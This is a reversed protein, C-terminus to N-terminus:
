IILFGDALQQFNLHLPRFMESRVAKIEPDEFREKLTPLGMSETVEQMMIKVFIRSSSTTDDENM